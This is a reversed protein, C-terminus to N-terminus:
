VLVGFVVRVAIFDTADFVRFDFLVPLEPDETRFVVDADVAADAEVELGVGGAGFIIIADVSGTFFADVEEEAFASEDEDAATPDAWALLVLGVVVVVALSAEEEM